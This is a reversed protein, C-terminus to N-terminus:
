MCVVFRGDCVGSLSSVCAPHDSVSTMCTCVFTSTRRCRAMAAGSGAAPGSRCWVALRESAM